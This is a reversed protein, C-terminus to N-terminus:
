PRRSACAGREAALPRGLRCVCRVGHARARARRQPGPGPGLRGCPQARSRAGFEDLLAATDDTSGDDAVIVEAVPEDQGAVSRLTERLLAARNHTPIVVSVQGAGDGQADLPM